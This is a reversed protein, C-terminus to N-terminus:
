RNITKNMAEAMEDDTSEEADGRTNAHACDFLLEHYVCITETLVTGRVTDPLMDAVLDHPLFCIVLGLLLRRRATAWIAADVTAQGYLSWGAISCAVARYTTIQGRWSLGTVM